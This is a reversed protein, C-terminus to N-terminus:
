FVLPVSIVFRRRMASTEAEVMMDSEAWAMGSAGM